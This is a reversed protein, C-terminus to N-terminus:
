LVIGIHNFFPKECTKPQILKQGLSIMKYVSYGKCLSYDKCSPRNEFNTEKEFILQKNLGNKKACFLGLTTTSDNKCTKALKLKKVWVPWKQQIYGKCSPRNEFNYDQKEFIQHKKLATKQVCCSQYPQLITKRM